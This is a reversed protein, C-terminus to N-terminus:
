FGKALYEVAAIYGQKGQGSIQKDCVAQIVSKKRFEERKYIDSIHVEVTPVQCAAICDALAYSYHTLAGANLVVGDAWRRNSHLFDLLIGEHNSQFFKLQHNVTKEHNSIWDNLDTLTDSGYIEPEREGLLNLNPGNVILLKM